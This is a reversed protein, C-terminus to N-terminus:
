NKIEGMIIEYLDHDSNQITELKRPYKGDKIARSCHHKIMSNSYYRSGLWSCIKDTTEEISNGCINLLYRTVDFLLRERGDDIKTQLIKEIWLYKKPNPSKGSVYNRKQEKLVIKDVHAIFAPRINEIPVRIKDWGYIVKVQSTNKSKNRDLLKTNYTYPIRIMTNNLSPHNGSDCKYNTLYREVWQLFLKSLEEPQKGKHNNLKDNWSEMKIPQIIAYGNGTDIVTPRAKITKHFLILSENLADRNDLDVFILNPIIKEQEHKGFATIRCDKFGSQIFIALAEDKSSVLIQSNHSEKTSVTRPWLPEEFHSLIFDLGQEQNM